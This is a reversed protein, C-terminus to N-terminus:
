RNVRVSGVESNTPTIDITFAVASAPLGTLSLHVRMYGSKPPEITIDAPLKLPARTIETVAAIRVPSEAM